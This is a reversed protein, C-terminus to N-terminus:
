LKPGKSYIGSRNGQKLAPKNNQKPTQQKPQQTQGRERKNPNWRFFNFDVKEFNPRVWADFKKGDNGTMGRLFFAKVDKQKTPDNVAESWQEYAEDPIEVGKIKHHVVLKQQGNEPTEGRSLRQQAKQQRAIERNEEAYRNRDTGTFDFSINRESADVQIYADRYLGSRSTYKEHLVKGGGFLDLQKGESLEAKKLTTFHKLESCPMYELTNTLRDKSVYCPTLTGPSLELNVVKGAHRTAAINRKVDDDLLVGHFPANLDPEPQWYHPIAKISGDSQEQLSVRGKVPIRVGPSIEPEMDILQSSKYGWAMGKLHPQLDEIRIGKKLLDDQDIKSVDLPQKWEPNINRMEALPDIRYKELENSSFDIKILNDLVNEAMMFIGTHTPNSFEQLFKKLFNELPTEMTSINLLNSLGGTDPDTTQLNGEKDIDTVAKLKGDSAQQVLMIQKSDNAEKKAM